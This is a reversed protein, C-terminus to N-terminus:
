MRLFSKQTSWLWLHSHKSQKRKEEEEDEKEEDKQEGDEDEEKEEEEKKIKRRRENMKKQEGSIIPALAATAEFVVSSLADPLKMSQPTGAVSFQPQRQVM